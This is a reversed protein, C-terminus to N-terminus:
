VKTSISLIFRVISDQDKINIDSFKMAIHHKNDTNITRIVKGETEITEFEELKDPLPLEIKVMLPTDPPYIENSMFRIGGGSVDLTHTKIFELTEDEAKVAYTMNLMIPVRLFNRRQIRRLENPIALTFMPINDGLKRGVVTSNFEYIEKTLVIQVKVAEGNILVLPSTQQYPISIDFSNDSIGQIISNYWDIRSSRSIQIKQNVQLKNNKNAM